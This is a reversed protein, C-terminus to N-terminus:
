QASFPVSVREAQRADRVLQRLWRGNERRGQSAHRPRGDALLLHHPLQRHADTGILSPSLPAAALRVQDEEARGRCDLSRCPCANTSRRRPSIAHGGRYTEIAKAKWHRCTSIWIAWIDATPSRSEKRLDHMYQSLTRTSTDRLAEPDTDSCMIAATSAISSGTSMARHFPNHRAPDKRALKGSAVNATAYMSTGNGRETEALLRAM